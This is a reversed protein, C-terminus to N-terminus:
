VTALNTPDDGDKANLIVHYSLVFCGAEWAYGLGAHLIAVVIDCDALLFLELPIFVFTLLKKAIKVTHFYDYAIGLFRVPPKGDRTGRYWEWLKHWGTKEHVWRFLRYVRSDRNFRDRFDDNLADLFGAIAILIYYTM